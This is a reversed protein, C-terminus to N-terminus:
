FEYASVSCNVISAVGGSGAGYAVDMWIPVGPTLGTIIASLSFPWNGTIGLGNGVLNQTMLTGTLASASGPAAGTGWRLAVKFSQGATNNSGSGIFTVFVRSSYVPMITAVSGFGAMLGTTNSTAPPSTLNSQVTAGSNALKIVGASSTVGNGTTIAGSTGDISAVGATVVNAQVFATTALQTSNDGATATPATPVGTFAPSALPARSTDTPHVHDSRSFRTSVGPAATGSVLPSSNSGQNLVFSTSAIQDTNTDVTATTTHPSGTLTPSVSRVMTGTGTPTGAAWTLGLNGITTVPSNTVTFDDTPATLGVSTISNTWNADYDANSRKALVQGTTGGQPLTEITGSGIFQALDVLRLPSYPGSPNPLNLIQFSNMDLNAEMSNPASGDLSLTNDMATVIAQSNDNIIKVATTENQLNTLDDLILKPTTM